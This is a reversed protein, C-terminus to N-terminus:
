RQMVVVNGKYDVAVDATKGDISATGRWVGRDDQVLSSVNTYGAALVRDQAQGETFSNAGEFPAGPEVAAVDYYGAACNEMFAPQTIMGDAPLPQEAVRLAALYRASEAENLRGDGDTDATTWAATCEEVTAAHVPLLAGASLALALLSLRM